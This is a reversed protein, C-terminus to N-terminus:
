SELKNKLDSIEAKDKYEGDDTLLGEKLLYPVYQRDTGEVHYILWNDLASVTESSIAVRDERLCRQLNQIREVFLEHEKKHSPYDPYNALLMLREEEAFHRRTFASVQNLVTRVIKRQVPGRNGTRITDRLLQILRHLERHERDIEEVGTEVLRNSKM